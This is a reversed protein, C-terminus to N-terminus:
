FLYRLALQASTGRARTLPKGFDAGDNVNRTEVATVPRSNLLNFIDAILWIDQGTLEKLKWMVRANVVFSDPLRLQKCDAVSTWPEDPDCGRPARRDYYSGYYDNLYLRSYPRGSAYIATGGVSFGLPFDYTASVRLNHTVDDQQLGYEYPAQRPNDLSYTVLNELTAETRSLTYTALMSWNDSLRKDFKLELGLYQLFARDPTGLSFIYERRGNNFGVADTGDENWQVNIEDDEWMNNKRRYFV